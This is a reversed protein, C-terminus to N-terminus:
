SNFKLRLKQILQSELIAPFSEGSRQAQEYLAEKNLRETQVASYAKNAGTLQSYILNLNANLSVIGAKRSFDNLNTEAKELQVRAVEIQKELRQRAVVTADIKKDVQWSIYEGILTNIVDRSVAPDTSTFALSFIASDREPRVELGRAFKEEIKKRLKLEPLKPDAGPAAGATGSSPLLRSLFDQMGAKVPNMLTTTAWNAELPPALAPNHDLQLKDIVRDALTMSKLLKSQTQMFERMQIQSGLITMDEFKTVRPSQITLEIKGDARYQPKMALSVILTTVMSTLLISLILWKRRVVIELWDRIDASDESEPAPENVEPSPAQFNDRPVPSPLVTLDLKEPEDSM